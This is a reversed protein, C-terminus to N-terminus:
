AHQQVTQCTQVTLDSIAIRHSPLLNSIMTSLMASIANKQTRLYLSYTEKIAFM